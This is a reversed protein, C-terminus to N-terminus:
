KAKLADRLQTDIAQGLTTATNMSAEAADVMATHMGGKMLAYVGAITTGGPSCVRDKLEHPHEGTELIMQAAGLMTQAALMRATKRPLGAKVGADAFAEAIMFYYAPGSGSVGTVAELLNEKVVETIGVLDFIAKAVRIDEDSAYTGKAVASAGAGLLAPTNPMCRVVRAGPFAEELAGCSVGAAVSIILGNAKRVDAIAPLVEAFVQPKIALILVDSDKAVAANNETVRVGFEAAISERLASSAEGVHASDKPFGAALMGRLICSGMNGCGIFGVHKGSLESVSM